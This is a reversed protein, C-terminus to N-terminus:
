WRVTCDQGQLPPSGVFEVGQTAQWAKVAVAQFWLGSSLPPCLSNPGLIGHLMMFCRLLFRLVSQHARTQAPLVSYDTIERWTSAEAQQRSVTFTRSALFRPQASRHSYHNGPSWPHLSSWVRHSLGLRSGPPQAPQPLFKTLGRSLLTLFDRQCQERSTPLSHPLGRRSGVAAWQM